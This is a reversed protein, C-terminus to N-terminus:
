YLNNLHTQIFTLFFFLIIVTDHMRMHVKLRNENWYSKGCLECKYKNKTSFMKYVEMVAQAEKLSIPYINAYEEDLNSGDVEGTKDDEDKCSMHSIHENDSEFNDNNFDNEIQNDVNTDAEEFISDNPANTVRPIQITEESIDIETKIDNNEDNNEEVSKTPIEFTEEKTLTSYHAVPIVEAPLVSLRYSRDWQFQVEEYHTKKLDVYSLRPAIGLEQRNIAEM